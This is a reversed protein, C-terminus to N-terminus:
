LFFFFVCFFEKKKQSCICFLLCSNEIFFLKEIKSEVNFQKKFLKVIALYIKILFSLNSNENEEVCNKSYLMKGLFHWPNSNAHWWKMEIEDTQLVFTLHLLINGLPFIREIQKFFFFQPLVSFEFLSSIWISIEKKKINRNNPKKARETAVAFCATKSM